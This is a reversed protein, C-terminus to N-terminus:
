VPRGASPTSTFAVHLTSFVAAEQRVSDEPFHEMYRDPNGVFMSEAVMVVESGCLAAFVMRRSPM